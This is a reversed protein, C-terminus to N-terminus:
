QALCIASTWLLRKFLDMPLTTGSCTKVPTVGSMLVNWIGKQFCQKYQFGCILHCNWWHTITTTKSTCLIDAVWGCIPDKWIMISLTMLRSRQGMAHHTRDYILILGRDHWLSITSTVPASKKYESPRM